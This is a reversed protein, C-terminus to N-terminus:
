YKFETLRFKSIRPAFLIDVQVLNVGDPRIFGAFDLPVFGHQDLYTLVQLFTPAGDNYPLLAVELQILSCAKLTQQGGALVGLEGGQVDVKLFVNSTGDVLSDLTETTLTRVERDVNSNESLLSSGTEMVFFQHIENDASLACQRLRANGIDSIVSRLQLEKEEQPEVMLIPSDAFVRRALRSWHGEYAGVDVILDPRYGQDALRRYAAEEPPAARGFVKRLLRHLM